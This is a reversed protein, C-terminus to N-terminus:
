KLIMLSLCMSVTPVHSLSLMPNRNTGRVTPSIFSNSMRFSCQNVSVMTMIKDVAM